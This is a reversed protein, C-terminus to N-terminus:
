ASTAPRLSVFPAANLISFSGLIVDHPRLSRRVVTVGAIALLAIVALSALIDIAVLQGITTYQSTANIALVVTGTSGNSLSGTVMYVRWRDSGATAPLTIVHGSNAALWSPDTELRPGPIQRPPGFPHGSLGGGYGSTPVVVAHVAGNAPIWDLAIDTRSGTQGTQQYNLVDGVATSFQSTLSNDVPGLLDNRLIAIGAVSIVTLAIAVLTLLATILKIRLPTRGPVAAISRWFGTSRGAQAM